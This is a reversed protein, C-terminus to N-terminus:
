EDAADSTYLLCLYDEVEREEVAVPLTVARCIEDYVAAQAIALCLGQQRAIRNLTIADCFPVGPHLEIEAM